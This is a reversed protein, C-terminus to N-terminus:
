AANSATGVSANGGAALAVVGLALDAPAPLLNSSGQTPQTSVSAGAGGFILPGKTDYHLVDPGGILAL